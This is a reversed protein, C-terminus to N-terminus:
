VPKESACSSYTFPVVAKRERSDTFYSHKLMEGWFLSQALSRALKWEIAASFLSILATYLFYEWGWLLPTANRGGALTRKAAAADHLPSCKCNTSWRQKLWMVKHSSHPIMPRHHDKLTFKKDLWLQNSKKKKKVQVGISHKSLSNM